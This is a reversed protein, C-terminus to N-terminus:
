CQPHTMYKEYEGKFEKRAKKKAEAATKGHIWQNCWEWLGVTVALTSKTLRIDWGQHKPKLQKHQGTSVFKHQATAWKASVFGRV